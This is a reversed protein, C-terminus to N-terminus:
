VETTWFQVLWNIQNQPSGVIRFFSQFYGQGMDSSSQWLINQFLNVEKNSSFTTSLNSETDSGDWTADLKDSKSMQIQVVLESTSWAFIKM